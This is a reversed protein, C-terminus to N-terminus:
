IEITTVMGMDSIDMNYIGVGLGSINVNAVVM